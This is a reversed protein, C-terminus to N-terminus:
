FTLVLATALASAFAFVCAYAHARAFQFLVRSDVPIRPVRSTRPTGFTSWGRERQWGHEKEEAVWDSGGSDPM